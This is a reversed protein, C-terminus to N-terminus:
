FTLEFMKWMLKLSAGMLYHRVAMMYSHSEIEQFHVSSMVNTPQCM